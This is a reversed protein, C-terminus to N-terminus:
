WRWPDGFPFEQYGYDFGVNGRRRNRRRQTPVYAPQLGPYYPAPVGYYDDPRGPRTLYDPDYGWHPVWGNRGRARPYEEQQELGDRRGQYPDARQPTPVPQPRDEAEMRSTEGPQVMNQTKHLLNRFAEVGSSAPDSTGFRWSGVQFYAMKNSASSDTGPVTDVHFYDDSRAENFDQMAVRNYYRANEAATDAGLISLDPSKKGIIQLKFAKIDNIDSRNQQKAVAM